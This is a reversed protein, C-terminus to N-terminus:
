GDLCRPNGRIYRDETFTFDNGEDTIMSLVRAPNLIADGRLCEVVKQQILEKERDTMDAFNVCHYADLQRYIKQDINVSMLEGLKRVTCISFHTGSFLDKVHRQVALQNFEDM